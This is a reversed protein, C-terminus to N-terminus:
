NRRLLDSLKIDKNTISNTNVSFDNGNERFQSLGVRNNDNNNLLLMGQLFSIIKKMNKRRNIIICKLSYGNDNM